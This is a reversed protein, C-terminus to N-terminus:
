KKEKTKVVRLLLGLPPNVFVIQKCGVAIFESTPLFEDACIRLKMHVFVHKVADLLTTTDVRIPIRLQMFYFLFIEYLGQLTLCVSANVM